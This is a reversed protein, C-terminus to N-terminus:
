ATRDRRRGSLFYATVGMLGLIYGVGGAIDQWRLKRQLQDIDRRLAVIQRELESDGGQGAGASTADHSHSHSGGQAHDEAHSQPQADSGEEASPSSASGPAEPLSAPLETALVTYTARHGESEAVIRWDCRHTATFHFQGEDDSVTESLKEGAPSYATVVAGAVPVEGEAFVEGHIETGHVHAFIHVRHAWGRGQLGLVLLATLIILGLNRRYM